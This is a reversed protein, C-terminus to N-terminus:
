LQNHRDVGIFRRWNEFEGMDPDNSVVLPDKFTEVLFDFSDFLFPSSTQELIAVSSSRAVRKLLTGLVVPVKPMLYCFSAVFPPYLNSHFKQKFIM